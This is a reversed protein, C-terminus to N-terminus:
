ILKKLGWKKKDEKLIQKFLDRYFPSLVIEFSDGNDKVSGKFYNPNRKQEEKIIKKLDEM